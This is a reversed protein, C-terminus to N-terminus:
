GVTSMVYIDSLQFPTNPFKLTLFKPKLNVPVNAGEIYSYKRTATITGIMSEIMSQYTMLVDIELRLDLMFSRVFSKSSVFYYGIEGLKVYNYPFTNTTVKVLPRIVDFDRNFDIDMEFGNDLQKYLSNPKGDYKYCIMKIM